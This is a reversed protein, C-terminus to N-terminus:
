KKGGIIINMVKKLNNKTNATIQDELEYKSTLVNLSKFEKRKVVEELEMKLEVINKDKFLELYEIFKRPETTFHEIYIARIEPISKLAVSNQIAGPKKTFTNLYHLIDIKDQNFGEIKKHTCVLENNSYIKIINVYSLVSVEKGVLYEPVSYFNNEVRILSYKNVKNITKTALELPPRYPLLHKQEEKIFSDKNLKTLINELHLEAEEIKNFEYKQAFAKNRIFKVSSEVHGKENGKFCNTVNINFDYYLSLKILDENLEKENKGIFKSVVNKMNDYVVQNYVGKIMEFFRVHSDLFVEKRQNNYLYAWRFGSRPSSLVAIYLKKYLGNIILKVEGFDYELREGFKYLQKIFAEKANNRKLRIMNTITSLGIDHGKDVIMQHIQIATLKQKHNKLKFDKEKEKELIYDLEKDIEDNYKRTARNSSNYKPMNVIEEQIDSVDSNILTKDNLKSQNDLYNNWYKAITKRDHGTVKAVERNSMNKKKLKIIAYNDMLVLM